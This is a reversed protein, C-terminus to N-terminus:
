LVKLTSKRKKGKVSHFFSYAMNEILCTQRAIFQQTLRSTDSIVSTQNRFSMRLAIVFLRPLSQGRLTQSWSSMM